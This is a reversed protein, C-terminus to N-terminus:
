KFDRSDLIEDFLDLVQSETNHSIYIIGIDQLGIITEEIARRNEKDLQSTTEDLIIFDVDKIIARALAIRQKEGGSITSGNSVLRRDLGSLDQGVFPSLQVNKIVESLEQDSITKGLTINERISGNILYISQDIYAVHKYYSKLNLTHLDCGNICINGTKASKLGLLLQLLTSKGSGSEGVIAYKKGKTFTYSFDDFIVHDDYQFSIANLSINEVRSGVEDTEQVTKTQFKQLLVESSKFITISSTLGQIGNFLNGSLAAISFVSGITTLGISSIYLTFVILGIQSLLSILLVVSGVKAQTISFRFQQREKVTSAGNMRAVFTALADGLFFLSLGEMNDRVAETYEENARTFNEQAAVVYAQSLKPVLLSLLLFAVSVVAISWHLICISVFASIVLSLMYMFTLINEFAQTEIQKADNIFWSIAKGTDRVVMLNSSNEVVNDTIQIKLLINSSKIYRAKFYDSLFSFLITVSIMCALIFIARFFRDQGSRYSDFLFTLSYSMSTISIAFVIKFLIAIITDKWNKKIISLLMHNM